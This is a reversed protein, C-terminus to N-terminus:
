STLKKIQCLFLQNMPYFLCSKLIIKLINSSLLITLGYDMESVVESYGGEYNIIKCLENISAVFRILKEEEANPKNKIVGLSDFRDMDLLEDKTYFEEFDKEGTTDSSTFLCPLAEVETRSRETHVSLLRCYTCPIKTWM